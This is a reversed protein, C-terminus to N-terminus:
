IEKRGLLEDLSIDFFDAIKILMAFDTESRRNEWDCINQRTVGLKEALAIQTLENSERLEKLKNSFM